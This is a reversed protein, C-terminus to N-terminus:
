GLCRRAVYEVPEGNATRFPREEVDLTLQNNESCTIKYDFIGAQEGDLWVKITFHDGSVGRLANEVLVEGPDEGDNAPISEDTRFVEDGTKEEVAVTLKWNDQRDLNRLRVDVPQPNEQTQSCGSIVGTVALGCVSLVRRRSPM